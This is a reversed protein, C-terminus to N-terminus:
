LPYVPRLIYLAQPCLLKFLQGLLYPSKQDLIDAMRSAMQGRVQTHHLQGDGHVQHEIQWPILHDPVHAMLGVGM